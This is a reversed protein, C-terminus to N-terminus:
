EGQAEVEAVAEKVAAKEDKGEAVKAIALELALQEKKEEVPSKITILRLDEEGTPLEKGAPWRFFLGGDRETREVWKFGDPSAPDYDLVEGPFRRAIGAAWKRQQQTLTTDMMRRRMLAKVRKSEYKRHHAGDAMEWPILSAVKAAPTETMYGSMAISVAQKSVGYIRAIQVQDLKEKYYLDLLVEVSPLIEFPM